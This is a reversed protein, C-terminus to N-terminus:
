GEGKIYTRMESTTVLICCDSCKYTTECQCLIEVPWLSGVEEINFTKVDTNNYITEKGCNPCKM